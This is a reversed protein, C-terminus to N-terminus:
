LKDQLYTGATKTLDFDDMELSDDIERKAENKMSDSANSGSGIFHTKTFNFDVTGSGSVGLITDEKKEVRVTEKKIASEPDLDESDRDFSSDDSVKEEQFSAQSSNNHISNPM